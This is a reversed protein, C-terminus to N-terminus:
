EGNIARMLRSNSDSFLFQLSDVAMGIGGVIVMSLVAVILGYEVVTAARRDKIFRKLMGPGNVTEPCYGDRVNILSSATHDAPKRATTLLRRHPEREAPHRM